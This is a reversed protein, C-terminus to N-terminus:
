AGVRLAVAVAAVAREATDQRGALYDTVALGLVQRVPAAGMLGRRVAWAATGDTCNGAAYSHEPLVPRDLDEPRRALWHLVPMAEAPVPHDEPWGLWWAVAAARRQLRADDAASRRARAAQGEPTAAREAAAAAAERRRLLAVAAALDPAHIVGHPSDLIVGAAVTAHRGRGPVLWEATYAQAWVGAVPPLARAWVTTLGGHRGRIQRPTHRVLEVDVELTTVVTRAPGHRNHWSKSYKHWDETKVHRWVAPGSRGEVRDAGTVTRLDALAKRRLEAALEPTSRCLAVGPRRAHERRRARLTRTRQRHEVAAAVCAVADGVTVGAPRGVANVVARRQAVTTPPYDSWSTSLERWISTYWTSPTM